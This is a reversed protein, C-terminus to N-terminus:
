RLFTLMQQSLKRENEERRVKVMRNEHGSKKRKEGSSPADMTLLLEPDHSASM